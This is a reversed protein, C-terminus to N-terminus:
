RKKKAMKTHMEKFQEPTLIEDIAVKTRYYEKSIESMLMGEREYLPFVVARHDEPSSMYSRISDRVAHLQSRYFELTKGSRSMIIDIRSKQEKTLNSVIQEIKSHDPREHERPMSKDPQAAAMVALGIAIVSLFFRKM